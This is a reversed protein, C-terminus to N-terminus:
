HSPAYPNSLFHHPLYVKIDRYMQLDEERRDLLWQLGCFRRALDISARHDGNFHLLWTGGIGRWVLQKRVEPGKKEALGSCSHKCYKHGRILTKVM